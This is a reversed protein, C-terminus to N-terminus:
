LSRLMECCGAVQKGAPKLNTYSYKLHQLFGMYHLKSELGSTAHTFVVSLKIITPNFYNLVIVLVSCVVVFDKAALLPLSWLCVPAYAGHKYYSFKIHCLM